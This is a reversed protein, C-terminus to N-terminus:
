DHPADPKSSRGGDAWDRWNALTAGAPARVGVPNQLRTAIRYSQMRLSGALNIAAADGKSSEAIFVSSVMSLLALLVIGGMTLGSRFIISHNNEM